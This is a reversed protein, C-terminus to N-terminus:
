SIFKVIATIILTMFILIDYKHDLGKNDCKCKNKTVNKIFHFVFYIVIFQIAIIIYIFIDFILSKYKIKDFSNAYYIIIMLVFLTIIYYQMYTKIDVDCVCDKKNSLVLWTFTIFYLVVNCLYLLLIISSLNYTM